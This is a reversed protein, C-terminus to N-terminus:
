EPKYAVAASSPGALQIIENQPQGTKLGETLNNWIQYLRDGAMELIGGVYQPSNKDLFAATEKTNGYLASPGDGERDLMGLAVLADPFDPIARPHLGLREGIAAGSLTDSGLHTFLELEVASLLTRSGFFGMGVQM